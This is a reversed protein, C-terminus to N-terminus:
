LLAMAVSDAKQNAALYTLWLRFRIYQIYPGYTIELIIMKYSPRCKTILITIVQPFFVISKKIELSTKSNTDIPIKQHWYRLATLPM